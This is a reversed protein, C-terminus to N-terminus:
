LIKFKQCGPSCKSSCLISDTKSSWPLWDILFDDQILYNKCSLHFSFNSVESLLFFIVTYIKVYLVILNCLLNQRQNKRLCLFINQLMNRRNFLELLNPYLILKFNIGYLFKALITCGTEPHDLKVYLYVKHLWSVCLTMVDRRGVEESVLHRLQANPM